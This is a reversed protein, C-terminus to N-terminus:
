RIQELDNVAMEVSQMTNDAEGTAITGLDASVVFGRGQYIITSDSTRIVFNFEFNSEVLRNANLGSARLKEWAWNDIAGIQFLKTFTINEYRATAPTQVIRGNENHEVVDITPKLGSVEQVLASEVGDIELVWNNNKYGLAM